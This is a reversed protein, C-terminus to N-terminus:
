WVGNMEDRVFVWKGNIKQFYSLNSHYPYSYEIRASLRDHSFFISSVVPSTEIIWCNGWHCAMIYIYPLLFEIKEKSSGKAYAPQMINDTGLPVMNGGIFKSILDFYYKNIFLIGASTDKIFPEFDRISDKITCEWYLCDTAHMNLFDSEDKKNAEFPNFHKTSDISFDKLNARVLSDYNDSTLVHYHIKNKIVFYKVNTYYTYEFDSLRLNATNKPFYFEYFLDYVDKEIDNLRQYELTTIPTKEKRWNEFFKDLLEYSNTEYAGYLLEEQSQAYSTSSVFLFVSIFILFVRKSFLTKTKM